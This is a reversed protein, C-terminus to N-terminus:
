LKELDKYILAKYNTSTTDKLTKCYFTWQKLTTTSLYYVFLFLTGISLISNYSWNMQCLLELDTFWQYL